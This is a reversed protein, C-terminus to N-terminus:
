RENKEQLSHANLAFLLAKSIIINMEIDDCSCDFAYSRSMNLMKSFYDFLSLGGRIYQETYSSTNMALDSDGCNIITTLWYRFPFSESYPLLEAPWDFGKARVQYIAFPRWLSELLLLADITFIALGEEIDSVTSNPEIPYLCVHNDGDQEIGINMPVFTGQSLQYVLFIRYEGSEDKLNQYRRRNFEELLNTDTPGFLCMGQSPKVLFVLMGSKYLLGNNMVSNTVM